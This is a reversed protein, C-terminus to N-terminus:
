FYKLLMWVAWVCGCWLKQEMGGFDKSTVWKLHTGVKWEMDISITCVYSWICIYTDTFCRGINNIRKSKSSYRKSSQNYESSNLLVRTYHILNIHNQIVKQEWWTFRLMLVSSEPHRTKIKLVFVWAVICVLIYRWLVKASVNM